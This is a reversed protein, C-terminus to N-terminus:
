APTARRESRRTQDSGTGRRADARGGFGSRFAAGVRCALMPPRLEVRRGLTEDPLRADLAAALVAVIQKLLLAPM